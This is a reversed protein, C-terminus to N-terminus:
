QLSESSFMASKTLASQEVETPRLIVEDKLLGCVSCPSWLGSLILYSFTEWRAEEAGGLLGSYHSGNM